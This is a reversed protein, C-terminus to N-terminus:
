ASRPILQAGSLPLNVRLLEREVVFTTGHAGLLAVLL